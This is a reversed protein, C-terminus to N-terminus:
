RVSQVRLDIGSEGDERQLIRAPVPMGEVVWVITQKDDDTNVLKTAQRSQGGIEIEETGAVSYELQKVRGDDVLRYRLPKGAALDRVLMLNIMLADMDGPRLEIPGARDPKVDGSWSAVGRAWDYTAHKTSDSMLLQSSDSSALPRWHGDHEEFTTSQSLQALANEVKLSYRWRNNGVSQLTGQGSATMGMYSAQYNATFPEVAMALTSFGGLFAAALLTRLARLESARRRASQATISM